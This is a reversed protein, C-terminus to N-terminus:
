YSKSQSHFGMFVLSNPKTEDGRWYAGAINTLKVAKIFGTHPPAGKVSIQSTPM